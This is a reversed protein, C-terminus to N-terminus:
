GEDEYKATGYNTEKCDAKDPQPYGNNRYNRTVIVCTTCLVPYLQKGVYEKYDTM